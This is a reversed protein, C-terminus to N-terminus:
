MSASGFTALLFCTYFATGDIQKTMALFFFFVLIEIPLPLHVHPHDQLHHHCIYLYIIIREQMTLPFSFFEFIFSITFLCSIFSRLHRDLGIGLVYRRTIHKRQLTAPMISTMFIRQMRGVQIIYINMVKNYLYIYIDTLISQYFKSKTLCQFAPHRKRKEGIAQRTERDHSLGVQQSPTVGPLRNVGRLM